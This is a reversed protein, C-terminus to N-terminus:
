DVIEVPEEIMHSKDDLQIEDMSVVIDGEALRKKLNSVHFTSHIGKLEEPLESTYAVPGVRALIEIPTTPAAWNRIAEIKATDVHVGNCDIMHGLFQVSDLWFACKSFKAYLREKRLLELIIKLHKGHEEKDKSYVLIDDIFVIVFKDLYPKCVRNMLDMFVVPANTLGFLMVQFEFHCYRTRFATIPIGEEKVRLQHYGSRIDIPAGWPSSSPLIFGKDLLDRLQESLERMESPALRYLARAVPAAGPVLDIQFEVQRPPPLGPLDDPFVEPFDRIVPVDELRKEKPKEYSTDIKVLDIDLMSSFRTDVFSRDSSSDFLVYAYRNNLLFTCTVVNPGQPEADKIAYARSRAEGVEEQKVKQADTGRIVKSVVIMVLEFLSLTQVRPLMRKRAIGQKTGLREVSTASSRANFLMALLVVNVICSTIAENLNTPKSCTVEGKINDSLGRIYAEIKASETRPWKEKIMRRFSAQTLPASKPPMILSDRPSGRLESSPSDEDEVPVDIAENPREEFVFSRRTDELEKKLKKCEAREYCKDKEKGKKEVLAHAMERGCPQRSISSIRGFLSDIDRRMFGPLLRDGDERLFTTTSSEGIEHVSAPVTEDEPEVTNEVEIVDEPELDSAPPPPNLPNQKKIFSIDVESENRMKKEVLEYRRKKLNKKKRLSSRSKSSDQIDWHLMSEVKRAKWFLYFRWASAIENLLVMDGVKFELPKSRRDAYSNRLAFVVAGLELDLLYHLNDEHVKLQGPSFEAIVKDRQILVSGYGKERVVGTSGVTIFEFRIFDKRWCEAIAWCSEWKGEATTIGTMGDSCRRQFTVVYARVEIAEGDTEVGGIVNGFVFSLRREIYKRPKPCSSELQRKAQGEEADYGQIVKAESQSMTRGKWRTCKLTVTVLMILLIINVYLFHDLHFVKERMRCYDYRECEDRAKSRM